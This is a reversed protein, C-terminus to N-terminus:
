KGKRRKTGPEDDVSLFEELAENTRRSAEIQDVLNDWPQRREKAAQRQAKMEETPWGNAHGITLVQSHTLGILEAVSRISGGAKLADAIAKDRREPLEAIETRLNELRTRHPEPVPRRPKPM